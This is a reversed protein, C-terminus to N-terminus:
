TGKRTAPSRGWSTGRRATQSREWSTGRRATQSRGWSASTAQFYRKKFSAARTVKPTSQPQKTIAGTAEGERQRLQLAKEAERMRDHFNYQVRREQSPPGRRQAAELVAGIRHPPISGGRRIMELAQVQAQSVDENMMRSQASAGRITSYAQSM